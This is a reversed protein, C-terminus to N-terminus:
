SMVRLESVQSCTLTNVHYALTTAELRKWAREWRRSTATSVAGEETLDGVHTCGVWMRSRDPGIRQDGDLDKDVPLVTSELECKSIQPCM